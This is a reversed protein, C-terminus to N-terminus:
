VVPRTKFPRRQIELYNLDARMSNLKQITADWYKEDGLTLLKNVMEYWERDTM